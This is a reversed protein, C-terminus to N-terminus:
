YSGYSPIAPWQNLLLFLIVEFVFWPCLYQLHKINDIKQCSVLRMFWFRLEHHTNLFLKDRAM